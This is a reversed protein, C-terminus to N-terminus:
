GCWGARAARTEVPILRWNPLRPALVANGLRNVFFVVAIVAVAREPLRRHRRSACQLLQILVRPPSSPASRWRRCCRRGSRWRCGASIPRTRSRRTPKSCAARVAGAASWCCAAALRAGRLDGGAHGQVQVQLRLEAVVVGGQLPQRIRRADSFVEPSPADSLVYRKTLLNRFLESRMNAIKDILGSIRISLNQASAVVANIEAKETALAQREGTM